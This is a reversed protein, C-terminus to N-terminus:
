LISSMRMKQISTKMSERGEKSSCCPPSTVSSTPGSPYRTEVSNAYGTIAIYYFILAFVMFYWWIDGYWLNFFEGLIFFTVRVLLMILFAMLFNRVWRYMVVEAYSVLQVILKKYLSYYRLSLIFYTFMSVFGTVQYWTDFDPDTGNALFFYKKLLLKDTVVMVISFLLYLM